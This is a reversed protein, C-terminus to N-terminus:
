LSIENIISGAVVVGADVVGVTADLGESDAGSEAEEEEL